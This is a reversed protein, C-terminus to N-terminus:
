SLNIILFESGKNNYFEDDNSTINHLCFINIIESKKNEYYKLKDDIEKPFKIRNIDECNIICDLFDFDNSNVLNQLNKIIKNIKEKIIIIKYKKMIYEIKGKLKNRIILIDKKNLEIFNGLQEMIINLNDKENKKGLQIKGKINMDKMKDFGAIIKICLLVNNNEDLNEKEKMVLFFNGDHEIFYLYIELLHNIDFINDDSIYENFYKNSDKDSFISRSENNKNENLNNSISFLSKIKKNADKKIIPKCSRFSNYKIIYKNGSNKNM